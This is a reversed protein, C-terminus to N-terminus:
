SQLATRVAAQVDAFPRIWPQVSGVSAPLTRAAAEAEARTAYQGYIVVHLIRGDRQLRYTAFDGRDTQDALYAQVREASSLSVLQLTFSEPAQALIWAADRARGDAPV